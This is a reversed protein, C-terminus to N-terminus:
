KRNEKLWNNVEPIREFQDYTLGYLKMYAWTNVRKHALLMFGENLIIKECNVRIEIAKGIGCKNLLRIEATSIDTQLLIEYKELYSLQQLNSM